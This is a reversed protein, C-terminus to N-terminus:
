LSPTVIANCVCREGNITDMTGAIDVKQGIQVASSSVIRIGSIRATDEVYFFGNFVATVICGKLSIERGNPLTKIQNPTATIMKASFTADDAYVTHYGSTIGGSMARIFITASSAQATTTVTILNYTTRNGLNDFTWVVNPSFMDTGGTPDIGIAASTTPVASSISRVYVSATLTEGPYTRVRQMLGHDCKGPYCLFVAAKSGSHANPSYTSVNYGAYKGYSGGVPVWGSPFHVDADNCDFVPGEMNGNVLTENIPTDISHLYFNDYNIKGSVSRGPVLSVGIGAWCSIANSQATVASVCKFMGSWTNSGDPENNWFLGAPGLWIANGVNAERPIGPDTSGYPDIGFTRFYYQGTSSSTMKEYGVLLYTKGQEAALRQMIGAHVYHGPADPINNSGFGSIQQSVGGTQYISTDASFLVPPTEGTSSRAYATWGLAIGSAFMDIGPGALLNAPQFLTTACATARTSYNGAYDYAFISYYYTTNVSLGTHVCSGQSKGEGNVRAVEFGDTVSTPYGSTSCRVVAGACDPSASHTWTIIVARDQGTATVSTVPLPITNDSYPFAQAPWADRYYIAAPKLTGDIRWLGFYNEFSVNPDTNPDEVYARLDCCQWQIGGAINHQLFAGINIQFVNLQNAETFDYQWFTGRWAPHPQSPWGFEQVVIPKQNQGMCNKVFPIAETGINPWYSHFIGVDVFNIVDSVNEWWRIGVGVSHNRNTDISRVHQCMRYLWSIIQDRKTPNSDWNDGGGINDPHDPENKVDWLFVGPNDKLRGVIASVYQKHELEKQTGAAPFSTEWDFLTINAKMGRYRLYEVLRELRELYVPNVNAGGWGGASYPLNIRVVNIGLTRMRDIDRTIEAWNWNGFWAGWPASAPYYNTGKIKYVTGNLVFQDGLPKLYAQSAATQKIALGTTIVVLVLIATRLFVSIKL